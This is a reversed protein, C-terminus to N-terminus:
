FAKKFDIIQGDRRNCLHSHTTLDITYNVMRVSGDCLAMNFGLLHASGFRRRYPYGPTDPYPGPTPGAM